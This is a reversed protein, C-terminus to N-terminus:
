SIASQFLKKFDNRQKMVTQNISKILNQLKCLNKNIPRKKRLKRKTRKFLFNSDTRPQHFSLEWNRSSIKMSRPLTKMIKRLCRLNKDSPNNLSKLFIRWELRHSFSHFECMRRKLRLRRKRRKRRGPRKQWRQRTVGESLSQFIM